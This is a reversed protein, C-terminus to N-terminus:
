ARDVAAKFAATISSDAPVASSIYDMVTRGAWCGQRQIDVQAAGARFTATAGGRRLSHVSYSDSSLGLGRILVKFYNRLARITLSKGDPLTFLPADSSCPIIHCLKQFTAVPDLLTDHMRPIPICVPQNSVQMTKSWKLMLVLGPPAVVIDGRTLHRSTDFHNSSQPCLNSARLLGFFGLLLANHIVLGIKGQLSCLVCLKRLLQVTVPLKRRPVTRMTISVARLMLRVEMSDLSSASIHLVKHMYRVASIYNSVSKYTTFRQALYEIYNCMTDASPAIYKLDYRKCFAMYKRLM